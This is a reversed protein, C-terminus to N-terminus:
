KKIRCQEGLTKEGNKSRLIAASFRVRQDNTMM